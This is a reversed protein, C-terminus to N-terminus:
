FPFLITIYLFSLMQRNRDEYDHVLPILRQYPDHRHAHSKKSRNVNTRKARNHNAKNRKTKSTLIERAVVAVALILVRRRHLVARRPLCLVSAHKRRHHISTWKRRSIRTSHHHKNSKSSKNQKARSQNGNSTMITRRRFNLITSFVKMTDISLLFYWRAASTIDRRVIHSSSWDNWQLLFGTSQRVSESTELSSPLLYRQTVRTWVHHIFSLSSRNRIRDVIAHHHAVFVPYEKSPELRSLQRYVFLAITWHSDCNLRHFSHDDILHFMRSFTNLWHSADTQRIVVAMTKSRCRGTWRRKFRPLFTTIDCESIQCTTAKLIFICGLDLTFARTMALETSRWSRWLKSRLACGREIARDIIQEIAVLRHFSVFISYRASFGLPLTM